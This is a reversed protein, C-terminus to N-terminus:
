KVQSKILLKNRSMIIAMLVWLQNSQYLSANVMAILFYQIFLLIIWLKGSDHFVIKFSKFFTLLLLSFYMLGSIFGNLMFAELITNHPWFGLPEVGAGFFFNDLFLNLGDKYLSFRIEDSPDFNSVRRILTSDYSFSIFMFGIFVFLVIIIFIIKRREVVFLFYFLLFIISIIFAIFPGRSGGSNGFIIGFLIMLFLLINKLKSTTTLLSIFGITSLMFGVHSVSIPNLTHTELRINFLNEFKVQVIYEYPLTLIVSVCTLFLLKFIYNLSKSLTTDDSIYTSAVAPLLCTGVGYAVYEWLPLRLNEPFILYDIIIRLIYLAWFLWWIYWFLNRNEVLNKRNYLIILVSIVLIFLRFPISILRNDIDFFISISSIAPYGAVSLSILIAGWISAINNNM